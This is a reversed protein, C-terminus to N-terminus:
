MMGMQSINTESESRLSSQNMITFELKLRQILLSCAVRQKNYAAAGGPSALDGDDDLKHYNIESFDLAHATM